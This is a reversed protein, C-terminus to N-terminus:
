RGGKVLHPPTSVKLSKEIDAAVMGRCVECLLRDIAPATYGGRPSVPGMKYLEVRGWNPPWNSTTVAHELGCRDCTFVTSAPIDKYGM